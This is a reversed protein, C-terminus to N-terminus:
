GPKAERPTSTPPHHVADAQVQRMRELFANTRNENDRQSRAKDDLTRKGQVDSSRLFAIWAGLQSSISESLRRSPELDSADSDVRGLLTLMSRVEAASGKAIYLFAILEDVTGREFGEAVNNSISVVAREIQNRFDSIRRFRGAEALDVILVALEVATNWVPLDEFREYKAMVLRMELPAWDFSSPESIAEPM